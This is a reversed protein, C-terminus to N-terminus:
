WWRIRRSQAAPLQGVEADYRAAGPHSSSAPVIRVTSAVTTQHGRAPGAARIAQALDIGIRQGGPGDTAMGGSVGTPAGGVAVGTVMIPRSQRKGTM